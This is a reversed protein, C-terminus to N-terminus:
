LVTVQLHRCGDVSRCGFPNKLVGAPVTAEYQHPPRTQSAMQHGQMALLGSLEAVPAAFLEGTLAAQLTMYLNMLPPRAVQLAAVAGLLIKATVHQTHVLFEMSTRDLTTNTPFFERLHLTQVGVGRRHVCFLHEHARNTRFAKGRFIIQLAVQQCSM